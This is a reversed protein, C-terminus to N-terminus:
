SVYGDRENRKGSETRCLSLAVDDSSVNSNANIDVSIGLEHESTGPVAVYQLALAEAEESLNDKMISRRVEM